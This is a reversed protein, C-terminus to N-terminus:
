SKELSEHAEQRTEFVQSSVRRKELEKGLKLRMFGSTTYRSVKLYYTREVYRVLDLYQDMIEDDASFSDYNVISNVRKGLPALLGDVADRIRKLDAEDRVRMGAYNMFVTNTEPDYSLRDEVRIDLLRDRLGIPGPRFLAEDMPAPDRVIPRFSMHALIDRELDIGPAIEALEIGDPVLRFVCRETVYYVDKGHAAALRGAFTIQGVDQVFKRHKGEWRIAIRGDGVETELGGSSFTGLFVVKKSNQSINIFGGCGAVRSGFRSANVNGFRDCEAFGLYASDLGGGDIFDFQAPHEIAASFNVAAGFDLGGLPVGGIVGPDLTLTILDQIKEENAIAGVGDPLGIGLNVVSNPTLELAARRTIVKREDLPMSALSELPIRVEGSLAPNYRTGYNQMHHEPEAVVICDVFIGPIRVRRADLSGSEAIREVQCLVVGGSNRAALALALCELRLSEKEMTVNGDPDATTGRIFAVNIPFAKFFLSEEGGLTVLEVIDDTAAANMKGGEIRPDVFTGLGVNSLTGPKGAAIDRYLHTIVGEPLNYAEVRDEVALKEIRPILGYHGGIVRKLLGEHGLRNLGKDAGDGQGGAYILTLGLPGGADLFRRELAHLLAEPTGNGGYGATALVDGDRILAVADEVPIVKKFAM